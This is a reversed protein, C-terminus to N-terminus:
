GPLTLTVLGRSVSIPWPVSVTRVGAALLSWFAQARAPWPSHTVPVSCLPSSPTRSIDSDTEPKRLFPTSAEHVSPRSTLSMVASSLPCWPMPTWCETRVSSRSLTERCFPSDPIKRALVASASPPASSVSRARMLPLSSVPLRIPTTSRRTRLRPTTSLWMVALQPPTKTTPSSPTGRAPPRVTESLRTAAFLLYQGGLARSGKM